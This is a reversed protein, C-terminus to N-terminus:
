SIEEHQINKRNSKRLVLLVSAVILALGISIPIAWSKLTGFFTPPLCAGSRYEGCTVALSEEVKGGASEATLIVRADPINSPSIFSFGFSGNAENIKNVLQQSVIKKGSGDLIALTMTTPTLNSAGALCAFARYSEGERLDFPKGDGETSEIGFINIPLPNKTFRYFTLPMLVHRDNEIIEAIAFYRGIKKEPVPFGIVSTGSAPVTFATSTSLLLTKEELRQDPYVKWELVGSVSKAAANRITFRIDGSENEDYFIPHAPNYKLQSFLVNNKEFSLPSIKNDGIIEV